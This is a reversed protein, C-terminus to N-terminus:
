FIIMFVTQICILNNQKIMKQVYKIKLIKDQLNHIKNTM